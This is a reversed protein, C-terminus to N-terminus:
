RIPHKKLYRNVKEMVRDNVDMAKLAIRNARAAKNQINQRWLKLKEKLDKTELTPRMLNDYGNEEQYYRRHTMLIRESLVDKFDKDKDFKKLETDIHADRITGHSLLAGLIGIAKEDNGIRLAQNVFQAVKDRYGTVRFSFNEIHYLANEFHVYGTKSVLHHQKNSKIFNIQKQCLVTADQIRRNVELLDITLRLLEHHYVRAAKTFKNGKFDFFQRKKKSATKSRDTKTTEM